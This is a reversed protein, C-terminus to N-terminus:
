IYQFISPLFGSLNIKYNYWTYQNCMFFLVNKSFTTYNSIVKGLQYWATILRSTM